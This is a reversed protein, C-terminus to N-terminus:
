RPYFLPSTWSSGDIFTVIMVLGTGNMQMSFQGKNMEATAGATLTFNQIDLETGSTVSGTPAGPGTSSWVKSTNMFLQDFQANNTWTMTIRDIVVNQPSNNTFYVERLQKGGAFVASSINFDVSAAQNKVFCPGTPSSWNTRLTTLTTSHTKEMADTWTTTSTLRKSDPDVIGGQTVILCQADRSVSEIKVTRTVNPALTQPGNTGLIWQGSSFTLTGTQTNTLSSFSFTRLADIGQQNYWLASEYEEARNTSQNAIMMYSLLAASFLALLGTALLAELMLSGRPTKM